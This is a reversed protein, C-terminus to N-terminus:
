RCVVMVMGEKREMCIVEERATFFVFGVYARVCLLVSVSDEISFLGGVFRELIM